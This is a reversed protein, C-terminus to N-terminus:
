CYGFIPVSHNLIQVFGGNVAVIGLAVSGWFFL